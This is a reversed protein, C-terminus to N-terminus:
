DVNRIAEWEKLTEEKRFKIEPTQSFEKREEPSLKCESPKECSCGKKMGEFSGILLQCRLAMNKKRPDM